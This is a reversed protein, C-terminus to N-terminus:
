LQEECTLQHETSSCYLGRCPDVEIVEVATGTADRLEFSTVVDVDPQRELFSILTSAYLARGWRIPTVGTPHLVTELAATVAQKGTLAAVGRRLSISAVVTAPVYHPCLVAVRAGLPRAPAVAEIIRETLTVSPRPAPDTPRDPVVVLAVTGAEREDDRNTHPLCRVAAVEPFAFSVLQEYDWPVIARDRHRTRASARALYDPEAEPGRGRVSALNTVKKVGRVPSLTGKITGPPLATAPSPDTAPDAASSVFEALVADVYVGRLVGLREPAATIVRLWRGTDAGVDACGVVWGAPVVFRLLGSERLRRSGDAVPLEQWSTGDWWQWRAAVPDANGCPAASEIEFYLSVSSGAATDPLDLGIAVMGTEGTDAVARRFPRYAGAAPKVTHRWGSTAEVKTAAVPSTTYSITIGSALPPTPPTPMTPAGGAVAQTAFSAVASQYGAWGFDGSSLFARVYHGEQGAVSFRASGGPVGSFFSGFHSMVGGFGIWDAGVRRQWRLTPSGSGAVMMPAFVTVTSLAKGFAEDCRLYFADGRKAVAGFPQFERTVDVAGDNHFGAQPVVPSRFVVAVTVSNFTLTEPVPVSAPIVCELWDGCSETLTVTVTSGVVTGTTTPSISGDARPYRWVANALKGVGSAAGFTLKVTLDGGDFVLAPSSVRLTHTADLGAAPDLPFGPATGAIGPLGSETGGPYTTRVGALSAGFATLSDMTVYRRENGFADKGGRLVSGLPVVAPALKPDVTAHAVVRDPVVPLRPIGLIRTLWDGHVRDPLTDLHTDLRVYERALAALLVRDPEDPLSLVDRDDVSTFLADYWSDDGAFTTLRAAAAMAAVIDEESRSM